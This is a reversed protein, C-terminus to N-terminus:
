FLDPHLKALTYDSPHDYIIYELTANYKCSVQQDYFFLTRVQVCSKLKIILPSLKELWQASGEEDKELDEAM